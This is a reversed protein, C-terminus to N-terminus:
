KRALTMRHRTENPKAITMVSRQGYFIREVWGVVVIEGINRLCGSASTAVKQHEPRLYLSRQYGDALISNLLSSQNLLLFLFHDMMGIGPMADFVGLM